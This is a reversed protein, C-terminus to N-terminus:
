EGSSGFGGDGRETEDIETVEEFTTKVKKVLRGQVIRDGIRPWDPVTDNGVYTLKVKVTGRFGNDIVAVSNTLIFDKKFALSSRLYLDIDYGKPPILVLGTSYVRSNNNVPGRETATLDFCADEDHAKRPPVARPHQKIYQLKM